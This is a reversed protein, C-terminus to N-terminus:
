WLKDMRNGSAVTSEDENFPVGYIEGGTIFVTGDPLVVSTHYVRQNYM